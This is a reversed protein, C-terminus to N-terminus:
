YRRPPKSLEEWVRLKRELVWGPEGEFRLKKRFDLKERFEKIVESLATRAQRMKIICSVCSCDLEHRKAM